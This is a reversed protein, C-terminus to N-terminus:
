GAGSTHVFGPQDELLHERIAAVEAEVRLLDPRGTLEEAIKRLRKSMERQYGRGEIEIALQTLALALSGADRGHGGSRSVESDDEDPCSGKEDENEDDEDREDGWEDEDDNGEHDEFEPEERDLDDGGRGQISRPPDPAGPTEAQSSPLAIPTSAAAPSPSPPPPPNQAPPPNPAPSAPPPPSPAPPTPAPQPAPAPPPPTVPTAPAPPKPRSSASPADDEPAPETSDPAGARPPQGSGRQTLEPTGTQSSESTGPAEPRGRTGRAPARPSQTPRAREGEDVAPARVVQLDTGNPPAFAQVVPGQAGGLLIPVALACAAALAASIDVIRLRM